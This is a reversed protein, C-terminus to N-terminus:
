ENHIPSTKLGRRTILYLIAAGVLEAAMWVLRIVVAAAIAVASGVASGLLPIMVLERVGIGGPLLSVFGAVTALTVSALSLGFLEWSFVAVDQLALVVLFLSLGNFLWGAGLLVWGVLSTRIGFGALFAQDEHAIRNKLLWKTLSRFVDPWTLFGGGLTFGIALFLLFMNERFVFVLLGCAITAGVFIWSLTEVFVSVVAPLLTVGSSRILDSRIVVVMAKGPIYKGLQSAFFAALSTLRNPQQGFAKLVDFWYTASLLLTLVYCIFAGVIYAWGIKAFSFEAARIQDLSNYVTVALAVLVVLAVVLRFLFKGSTRNSNEKAVQGGEELPPNTDVETRQLSM